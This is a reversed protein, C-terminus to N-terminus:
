RRTGALDLRLAGPPSGGGLTWEYLAALQRGVVDWSFREQVLREGNRGMRRLEARPARLLDALAGALVREEADIVVGCDHAAVEPFNCAKTTIVPLGCGMAELVARSLGESFSPLVFMDAARLASWTLPPQLLGPMSVSRELGREAILEAVDRSTNEFDPGAIVLHADPFSRHVASWARCLLAPGKKHHIRGMYLVLRKGRLDPFRALFDDPGVDPIDVGNPIVAVPNRLGFHRFDSVETETLARLCTAGALNKRESLAAYVRKKFAKQQLAWADLMGHTSVVYPKGAGRAHAATMALHEEWLGHIHFASAGALTHEFRRRLAADSLWKLRGLPFVDLAVDVTSPTEDPVCLAAIGSRHTGAAAAAVSARPVSTAIGGFRPDLHTFVELWLPQTLDPRVVDVVASDLM